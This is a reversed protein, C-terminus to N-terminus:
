AVRYLSWEGPVGKLTFTGLPDYIINSGVTLDKVTSSVAVAGDPAHDIVRSAIHVAIGAIDDGTLTIEGTHVGARMAVGLAQVESLVETATTVAAAPGDFIALHGDGTTHVFRGGFREVQNAGIRNADALFDLWRQDGLDSARQTSSVIDTFLVTALRRDTRIAATKGSVFREVHDLVDNFPGAHFPLTDAGELEVFESGEIHDAIWRGFTIRHYVADARHIVLTPVSITPVVSTLDTRAQWAFGARVMAPSMSSRQYKVWWKRFRLDSAVSPATLALADGTSGYQALYTETLPQLLDRPLGIPYDPGRILRAMTNILVLSLVREPYTAAFAMAMLGGEIDGVLAARESGVADMVTTVDEMWRDITPPNDPAVPDSIGAGRPDFIIVRAFSSLRDLYRAASPEDWLLDVNSQWASIFVLDIPGDGFVQYGIAGDSSQAYKTEPLM